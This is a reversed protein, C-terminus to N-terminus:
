KTRRNDVPKKCLKCGPLQFGDKMAAAIRNLTPVNAEVCTLAASGDAVAKVLKYLDVVEASYQYRVAPGEKAVPPATSLSAQEAEVIANIEETTMADSASPMDVPADLAAQVEAESAGRREAEEAAALRRAEEEQRARELAAQREKELQERLKRAAEAAEARRKEEEARRKEQEIREQEAAWRSRGDMLARDAEKLPDLYKDRAERARQLSITAADVMPKHHSVVEDTMEKIAGRLEGAALYDARTAIAAALTKAQVVLQTSKEDVTVATTVM